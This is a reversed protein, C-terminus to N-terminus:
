DTVARRRSEPTAPKAGTRQFRDVARQHEALTASFQSTGDGRAVFYLDRTTEPNVAAEIAAQGPLAIPTPPLGSRLYTNYPTDADLDKRHLRGDFADGLGYIVAPDTQLPMGLRQRNVFVAAVRRREGPQGTEKEILSAMILAEYPNRYPLDPARLQWANAIREAQMRYARRYLDLDSSGPDFLYTDPAFLGEADKESAGIARLLQAKSLKATQHQLEPTSDFQERLEDFTTGELITLRERLVDGRQIMEVVARMSMGREIAYRGARLTRTAGSARALAVFELENLGVGASRIAHAISRASAGNAIRVEVRHASMALPRDLDRLSCFVGVSASVALVSVMLIWGWSRLWGTILM